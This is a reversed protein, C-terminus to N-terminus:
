VEHKVLVLVLVLVLVPVRFDVALDTLGDAVSVKAAEEARLV